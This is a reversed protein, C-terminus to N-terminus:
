VKLDDPVRLGRSVCAEVIARHAALYNPCKRGETKEMHAALREVLEMTKLSPALNVYNWKDRARKTPM